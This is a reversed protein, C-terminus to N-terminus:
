QKGHRPLAAVLPVALMIVAYTRFSGGSLTVGWLALTSLAFLAMFFDLLYEHIRNM